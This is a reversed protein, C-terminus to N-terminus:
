DFLKSFEEEVNKSAKKPAPESKVETKLDDGWSEDTAKTVEREVPQAAAPSVFSTLADKLTEYSVKEYVTFLDVKSNIWEKAQAADESLPTQKVSARVDTTPFSSENEAETYIIKLDRGSKPDMIDGYEPDAMIALLKKYTTVGFAWYRVGKEPHARDIVPLFTRKTPLFKKSTQKYEEKSLGGESLIQHGFDAIPDPEGFSTPSLYTKGGFGYHFFLEVFPDENKRSHLPVIRFVNEGPAPRVLVSDRDVSSEKKTRSNLKELKQRFLDINSM